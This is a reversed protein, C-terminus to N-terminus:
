KLEEFFLKWQNMVIDLNYKLVNEKSNKGMKKRLSSNEILMLLKSSFDDLDDEEILFGDEINTIISRPGIPCNFAIIPLGSSMAELLAMPFGEHRSTMVSISADLYKEHINQLPEYFFTNNELNLEKCFNIYQKKDDSKGYIELRWDPYKEVVIKWIKILRDLGKEHSHRGVFIITKSELTSISNPFKEIPNPIIKTNRLNWENSSENSLAIFYDFKSAGFNRIKYKLNHFFNNVVNKKFNFEENYKSGHVEFVVPIKTKIFVTFLFGKLGNDSVIIIEPKFTNIVYQVQSKYDFIFSIKRKNLTLDFLEIQSNFSYFSNSNGNNQTVIGVEYGFKEVFYNAKISLVRAVGGENNIKPTFYLIRM